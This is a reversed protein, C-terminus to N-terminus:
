LRLKEEQSCTQLNFHSMTSCHSPFVTNTIYRSPRGTMLRLFLQHKDASIIHPLKSYNTSQSNQQSIIIYSNNIYVKRKWSEKATLFHGFQPSFLLVTNWLFTYEEASTGVGERDALPAPASVYMGAVLLLTNLSSTLIRKNMMRNPDKLQM